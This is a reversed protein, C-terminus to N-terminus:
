EHSRLMSFNILSLTLSYSSQPYRLLSCRKQREACSPNM